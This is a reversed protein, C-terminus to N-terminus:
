FRSLNLLSGLLGKFKLSGSYIVMCLCGDNSAVPSHVEEDNAIVLDGKQYNGNEDYYSGHLVLTAEYGEHGHKPMSRGPPIELFKGKFETDKFDINAYRVNNITAKWDKTDLKKFLYNSIFSPIRIESDSLSSKIKYDVYNSQKVNQEKDSVKELVNQWLDKSVNLEQHNELYYGGINEYKAVEAKCTKCYALHSSIMLSEAESSNGMAHNLLM